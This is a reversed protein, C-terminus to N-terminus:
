ETKGGQWQGFLEAIQNPFERVGARMTPKIVGPLASILSRFSPILPERGIVKLERHIAKTRRYLELPRRKHSHIVAGNPVYGIRQAISWHLDEAIAVNPLPFERLTSTKYLAFVHDHRDIEYHHSGEPTWESLRETTIIDADQHPIQRGFVADYQGENIADVLARVAGEGVPTADDVSFLTYETTIFEIAAMRTAGHGMWDLHIVTDGTIDTDATEGNVLVMVTTSIDQDRFEQLGVPTHRHTPIVITVVPDGRSGM